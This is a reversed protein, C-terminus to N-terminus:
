FLSMYYQLQLQKIRALFFIKYNNMDYDYYWWKWSGFTVFQCKYTM